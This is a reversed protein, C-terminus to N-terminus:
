WANRELALELLQMNMGNPVLVSRVGLSSIDRINRQEDDFFLIDAYAIGSDAHISAFHSFKAEPYIESFEFRQIIGFLTLLESAWEPEHTRSAIAMPIGLDDLRDLIQIVDPYLKVRNGRHDLVQNQNRRFPPSLCDCWVAGGCHWLTLDLDFVVLDPHSMM